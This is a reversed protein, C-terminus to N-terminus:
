QQNFAHIVKGDVKLVRHNVEINEGSASIALDTEVISIGSESVSISRTNNIGNCYVNHYFLYDPLLPDIFFCLRALEGPPVDCEVKTGNYIFGKHGDLLPHLIIPLAESTYNDTFFPPLEHATETVYGEPSRKYAKMVPVVSDIPVCTVTKEKGSTRYSLSDAERLPINITICNQNDNSPPPSVGTLIYSHHPEVLVGPNKEPFLLVSTWRFKEFTIITIPYDCVNQKNVWIKTTNRLLGEKNLDDPNVCLYLRQWGTKDEVVLMMGAEQIPYYFTNKQECSIFVLWFPMLIFLILNKM